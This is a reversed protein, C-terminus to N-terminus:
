KSINHKEFFDQNDIKLFRYQKKPNFDFHLLIDNERISFDLLRRKNKMKFIGRKFSIIFNFTDTSNWSGPKLKLTKDYNLYDKVELMSKNRIFLYFYLLYYRRYVQELFENDKSENLPFYYDLEKKINLYL